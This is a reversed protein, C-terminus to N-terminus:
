EFSHDSGLPLPAIPHKPPDLPSVWPVDASTRCELNSVGVTSNWRRMGGKNGNGWGHTVGSELNRRRCRNMSEVMEKKVHKLVRRAEKLVKPMCGEFDEVYRSIPDAPMLNTPVWFGWVHLGSRSLLYSVKKLMLQQSKFGVGARLKLLQCLAGLNDEVLHLHQWGRHMAFRIGMCLAWIEACM